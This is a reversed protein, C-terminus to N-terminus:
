SSRPSATGTGASRSARSRSTWSPGEVLAERWNKGGDFSVDVARIKGSGSWAFGTVEYFGPRKLSQGGSPNTIVSKTEMVMSFQRWKATRCRIPIARPKAACTGHSTASRSAGCGSSAPTARGAPLVLRVPYGNEARLREGNMAYAIIADDMVKELPISRAHAAADAGEFLVWAAGPELGAEDLLTSRPRRDVARRLAIWADAAGHDRLAQALRHPRQGLMRHFHFRSVSPYRVLDEM